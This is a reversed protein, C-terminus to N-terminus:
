IQSSQSNKHCCKCQVHLFPHYTPCSKLCPSLVMNPHNITWYLRHLFNYLLILLLKNSELASVRQIRNDELLSRVITNSALVCTINITTAPYSSLGTISCYWILCSPLFMSLNSTPFPPLTTRSNPYLIQMHPLASPQPPLRPVLSRPM